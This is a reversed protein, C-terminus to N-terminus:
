LVRQECSILVLDMFYWVGRPADCVRPVLQMLKPTLPMAPM